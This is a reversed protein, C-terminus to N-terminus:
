DRGEAGKLTREIIHILEKERNPVFGSAAYAIRGKPDIVYFTPIGSVRYEDAVKDGGLLLGYTYKKSRMYAAPDANKREWVDIGFVRVPQGKFHEHVKQVGPMAMKCPGCWTAWFDMLVVKGRLGSLSVSKGDPTKLEWDPAPRGVALLKDPAEYPRKDYGKPRKPTFTGTEFTPDVVLKSVTLVGAGKAGRRSSIRDVRRPLFDKRGFYWRAESRNQYVVYIVDCDVGGITKTGEYRAVRGEIEDSFPTPYLYELMFLRQAPELLPLAGPYRGYVFRKQKHELSVIQKGDTAVDFSYSADSNPATRVGIIRLLNRQQGGGFLKGWFGKSGQKAKVTGRIHPFREALDGVGYYEAEYSVAKIARTVADAKKLIARADPKEARAAAPLLVFLGLASIGAKKLNMSFMGSM